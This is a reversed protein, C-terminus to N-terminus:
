EKQPHLTLLDKLKEVEKLGRRAIGYYSKGKPTTDCLYEHSLTSLAWKIIQLSNKM